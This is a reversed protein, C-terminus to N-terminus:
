REAHLLGPLTKALREYDEKRNYLQASIRLLRARPSDWPTIPVEIQHEFFLADQVPDIASGAGTSGPLAFAAMSGLMEDPAPPPVGLAQCLADRGELALAHNRARLEPWGGPFLGGLFRIAEPISLFATPDLSGQWDFELRFRSRDTRPSSAGHSISLPHIERQKDERVHLFASGKPTCVWKHCNGTYYAAGIATIDLEVQGAAHAGDVLTDVGRAALEKVLAAIPLVLATPSTIHDLVALRTRPSVKELVRELVEDPSRIPFPVNVVVVRAGARQAVFEVANRCAGYTHDTVLLEDGARFSLSRLVTNVGATANPVVGLDSARAGVFRALSEIAEDLLPELERKFFRVPESEIQERLMAQRALVPKPCAGWSGHNLFTVTPDLTWHSRLDTM